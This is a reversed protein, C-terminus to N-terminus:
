GELVSELYQEFRDLEWTPPLDELDLDALAFDLLTVLDWYHQDAETDSSLRRYHALFGDAADLGYGVALNWRMHATDVAAPGWSAQTWDVVGTLRGDSWLTNGPHYDRHIFCERGAPPVGAAVASARKWLGPKRAWDPPAAATLDEYYRRYPPLRTRAESDIAHIAPLAEALQRVFADIDRPQRPPDGPLKDTLLAPVDCASGDLDAAIVRPTVVASQGLLELAVTERAPTFDPDESKWEPRAWRRLVVEQEGGGPERVAVVHNAHWRGETLRRVCVVEAEPGISAAVWDLAEVPPRLLLPNDFQGAL